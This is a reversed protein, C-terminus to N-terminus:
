YGRGPPDYDAAPLNFPVQRGVLAELTVLEIDTHNKFPGPIVRRGNEPEALIYQAADHHTATVQVADAPDLASAIDTTGYCTCFYTKEPDAEAYVGTGRIGITAIPTNLSLQEEARRKGFVGLMAGSLLRMSRLFLEKGGLELVSRERLIFATQGVATIVYSGDGTTIRDSAGIRTDYSAPKGNVRVDGRMDFISRNEPMKGPIGGFWSAWSEANWGLGGVLAGSGLARLLFARRGRNAEELDSQSRIIRAM